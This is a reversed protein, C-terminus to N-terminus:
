KIINTIKTANKDCSVNQDCYCYAHLPILNVSYGFYLCINWTQCWYASLTKFQGMSNRHTRRLVLSMDLDRDRKLEQSTYIETKIITTEFISLTEEWNRDLRDTVGFRKVRWSLSSIFFIEEWLNKLRVAWIRTFNRSAQLM